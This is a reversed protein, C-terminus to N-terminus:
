SSDVVIQGKQMNLRCLYPYTGPKLAPIDILNEGLELDKNIGLSPIKVINTHSNFDNVTLIWLIPHGAKVHITAPQYEIGDLENRVIQYDKYADMVSQNTSFNTITANARIHSGEFIPMVGDINQWVLIGGMVLMLIGSAKFIGNKMKSDISLVVAGFIAILPLTGIGFALMSLGGSVPSGTGLAYAQVALMPGCPLLGTLLGVAIPGSKSDPKIGLNPVLAFIRRAFGVHLANLGWLIIFVGALLALLSRMPMTLAIVSGLGGLAVGVLTYSFTKSSLYLLLDRKTKSCAAVFAGCMGVCHVGTFLGVIFLALLSLSGTAPLRMSGSLVSNLQGSGLFLAIGILIMVAIVSPVTWPNPKSEEPKSANLNSDPESIKANQNDAHLNHVPKSQKSDRHTKKNMKDKQINTFLFLFGEDDSHRFKNKRM